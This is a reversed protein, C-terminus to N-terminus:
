RSKALIKGTIHMCSNQITNVRSHVTTFLNSFYDIMTEELRTGWGVDLGNDDKLTDIKNVKRRAKTAAHFFKNNCDGERLWLQKCSQRWFVEQEKYLEVLKKANEEYVNVSFDDKRGKTRQM